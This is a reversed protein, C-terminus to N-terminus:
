FSDIAFLKNMQSSMVSEPTVKLILKLFSKGMRSHAAQGFRWSNNVVYDVKKRRQKEFVNFAQTPDDHQALLNGLYYADEIGQCAGQGMNPTTAHAADGMLCVQDVSWSDLRKLDSLEATHIYGAKGILESVLPHFDKFLDQLEKQDLNKHGPNNKAVAFWYVEDKSINSFGFRIGGGWAEKGKNLLAEPLTCPSIGRWCIQNAHRLATNAFLTKRVSSHIGDTGLLLDTSTKGRSFNVQIGEEGVTHNIYTKGFEVQGEKLFEELLIKQLHGRHIAITQNGLEDTVVENKLQKFPKLGADTIEMKLLEAGAEVMREKIGLWQLVKVANPQLWIGAGIQTISESQEYVTSQMGLKQLALATTLGTIGGGIIAIKM